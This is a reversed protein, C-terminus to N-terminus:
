IYEDANLKLEIKLLSNEQCDQILLDIDNGNDINKTYGDVSMLLQHKRKAPWVIDQLTHRSFNAFMSDSSIEKSLGEFFHVGWNM